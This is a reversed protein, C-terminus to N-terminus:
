AFSGLPMPLEAKLSELEPGDRIHRALVFFRVGIDLYNGVVDVLNALMVRYAPPGTKTGTDFWGLWDLDLVAYPVGQKELIDAIEEAVSSKGAGFVGTILLAQASTERGM